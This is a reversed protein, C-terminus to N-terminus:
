ETLSLVLTSTNREAFHSNPPTAHMNYISSAVTFPACQVTQTFRSLFVHANATSRVTSM